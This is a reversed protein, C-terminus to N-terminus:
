TTREVMVTDGKAAGSRERFSGKFYGFEIYGASGVLCTSEAEYFSRSLTSFTLGGVRVTYTGAGVFNVLLPGPINTIGNGFRDFRIIKGTLTNERVTPELGELRVPDLIAPGFDSPLVQKALHAAAPAFIDRGHFTTSIQEGMFARNGIVHIKANGDVVGTFIGNDPGVFVHDDRIVIIPRRDSGVTPDVVAVHITGGPFYRYHESVLFAGERVDHPEVDHTIDVITADQNISLIVGKMMGVYPDCLGFDTLLTIISVAM